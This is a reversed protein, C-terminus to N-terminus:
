KRKIYSFRYIMEKDDFYVFWEVSFHFNHSFRFSVETAGPLMMGLIQSEKAMTLRPNIEITGRCGIVQWHFSLDTKNGRKHFVPVHM